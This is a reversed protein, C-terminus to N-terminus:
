DPSCTKRSPVLKGRRVAVISAIIEDRLDQRTALRSFPMRIAQEVNGKRCM